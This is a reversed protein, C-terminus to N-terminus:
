FEEATDIGVVVGRDDDEFREDVDVADAFMLRAQETHAFEVADAVADDFEFEDFLDDWVREPVRYARTGDVTAYDYEREFEAHRGILESHVVVLADELAGADADFRDTTRELVDAGIDAEGTGSPQNDSM